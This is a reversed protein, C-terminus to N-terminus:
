KILHWLREFIARRLGKEIPTQINILQNMLDNGRFYSDLIVIMKINSHSQFCEKSGTNWTLYIISVNKFDFYVNCFM